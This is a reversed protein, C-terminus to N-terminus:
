SMTKCLQLIHAMYNPLIVFLVSYKFGTELPLVCEANVPSQEVLILLPGGSGGNGRCEVLIENLHSIQM